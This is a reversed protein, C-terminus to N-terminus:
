GRQSERFAAFEMEDAERKTREAERRAAEQANVIRKPLSALQEVAEIARQQITYTRDEQRRMWGPLRFLVVLAVIWVVVTFLAFAFKLAEIFLETDSM